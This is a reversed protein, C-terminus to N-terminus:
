PPESHACPSPLIDQSLRHHESAALLLARASTVCCVPGQGVLGWRASRRAQQFADLEREQESAWAQEVSNQQQQLADLFELEDEDLPRNKGAGGGGGDRSPLAAPLPRLGHTAHGTGVRQVPGHACSQWIGLDSAACRSVAPHPTCMQALRARCHSGLGAEQRESSSDTDQQFMCPLSAVACRRGGHPLLEM